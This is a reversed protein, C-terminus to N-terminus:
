FLEKLFHTLTNSSLKFDYSPTGAFKLTVRSRKTLDAKRVQVVVRLDKDAVEQTFSQVAQGDRTVRELVAQAGGELRFRLWVFAQPGDGKLADVLVCPKQGPLGERRGIAEPTASLLGTLDLGGSREVPGSISPGASAESLPTTPALEPVPKSVSPAALETSAPKLATLLTEETRDPTASGVGRDSPTAPDSSPEPSPGTTKAPESPKTSGGKQEKGLVVQPAPKQTAVSPSTMPAPKGTRPPVLWVEKPTGDPTTEIRAEFTLTGQFRITGSVPHRVPTVSITARPSQELVKFGLARLTEVGPLDLDEAEGPFVIRTTQGVACPVSVRGEAPVEVKQAGLLAAMLVTELM